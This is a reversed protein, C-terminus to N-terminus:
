RSATWSPQDLIPLQHGGFAPKVHVVSAIVTDKGTQGRGWWWGDFLSAPSVNGWNHDHYGSGSVERTVPSTSVAPERVGSDVHDLVGGACRITRACAMEHQLPM